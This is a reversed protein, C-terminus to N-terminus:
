PCIASLVRNYLLLEQPNVLRSNHWLLTFNGEFLKCREQLRVIEALARDRDGLGMYRKDMVTCEMAILPREILRLATSTRVNFARYDYCVGCRFGAVDAFTLTSDYDLGADNWNQFTTPTEWRLIHQRGGWRQQEVGEEVCIRRLIEFERLTQDPDTYTNYSAHLGIEHGRRSIRRILDRIWPHGLDYLGDVSGASHDAIFYFASRLHHQESLDMIADFNNCPDASRDGKRVRLWQPFRHVPGLFQKRNIVDSACSRLLRLPGAFAHEFPTDVDHSLTVSYTRPKRALGPWLRSLAAWLIELYENVIPRDLFKEQYALSATAPFRDRGDRKSKVAEEYRSLMFFASGFIDLGIRISEDGVTAFDYAPDSGYIIPIRMDVCQSPLLFQSVDWLKLPQKPLSSPALWESGAVSFFDDALLFSRGEAHIRVWKSDCQLFDYDLGLFDKLLVRIIYEREATRGQPCEVLIRM